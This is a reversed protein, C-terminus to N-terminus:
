VYVVLVGLVVVVVVVVVMVIRKCSLYTENKVHQWNAPMWKHTEMNCRLDTTDPHTALESADMRKHYVWLYQSSLKQM